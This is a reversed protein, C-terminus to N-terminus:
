RTQRYLIWTEVGANISLVLAVLSVLTLVYKRFLSARWSSRYLVQKAVRARLSVPSGASAPAAAGIRPVGDDGGGRSAWVGQNPRLRPLLTPKAPSGRYLM